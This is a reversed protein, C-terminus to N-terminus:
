RDDEEAEIACAVSCYLDDAHDCPNGCMLCPAVLTGDCDNEAREASALVRYNRDETLKLLFAKAEELANLDEDNAM